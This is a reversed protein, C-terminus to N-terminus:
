DIRVYYIRDNNLLRDCQRRCLTAPRRGANEGFITKVPSIVRRGLASGHSRNSFMVLVHRALTSVIEMANKLVRGHHLLTRHM